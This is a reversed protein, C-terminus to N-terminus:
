ESGICSNVAAITQAALVCPAKERYDGPKMDKMHSLKFECGPISKSNEKKAVDDVHACVSKPDPACGALLPVGVLFFAISITRLVKTGGPFGFALVSPASTFM